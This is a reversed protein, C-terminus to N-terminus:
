IRLIYCNNEQWVQFGTDLYLKIANRNDGDVILELKEADFEGFAREALCNLIERGYGRRRVDERVGIVEAVAQDRGSAKLVGYAALGLKDSIVYVSRSRGLDKWIDEGSIYVHPFIADHLASFNAREEEKIPRPDTHWVYHKWDERRLRMIYENVQPTGGARILFDRCDANEEPFFFTLTIDHGLKQKAASLLKGASEMYQEEEVNMLLSVDANGKEKDPCCNILGIPRDEKWLAFGYEMTGQFDKLIDEMHACCFSSGTERNANLREAFYALKELDERAFPRLEEGVFKGGM